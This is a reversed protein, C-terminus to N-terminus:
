LEICVLKHMKWHKKQHEKSCYQVNKCRGCRFLKTGDEQHHVGCVICGRITHPNTYDNLTSEEESPPAYFSATVGTGELVANLTELASIEDVSIVQPKGIKKVVDTLLNVYEKATPKLSQCPFFFPFETNVGPGLVTVLHNPNEEETYGFRRFILADFEGQKPRYRKRKIAELEGFLELKLRRVEETDIDPKPIVTLSGSKKVLSTILTGCEVSHAYAKLADKVKQQSAMATPMMLGDYVIMGQWNLLTAYIIVGILPGHLAPPAYKPKKFFSRDRFGLNCNEGLSQALGLVLYVKKCDETVLIAGDPRDFLVIYEGYVRSSNWYQIDEDLAKTAIENTLRTAFEQFVGHHPTSPTTNWHTYMATNMRNLDGYMGHQRLYYLDGNYKKMVMQAQPSITTVSLAFASQRLGDLLTSFLRGSEEEPKGNKVGKKHIIFFELARKYCQRTLVAYIRLSDPLGLFPLLLFAIDSEVLTQLSTM